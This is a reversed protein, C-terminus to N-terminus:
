NCNNGIISNTILIHESLKTSKGILTNGTIKVDMPKAVDTAKM